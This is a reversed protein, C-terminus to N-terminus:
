RWPSFSLAAAAAGAPLLRESPNGSCPAWFSTSSQFCHLYRPIRPSTLITLNSSERMHCQFTNIRHHHSRPGPAADHRLLQRFGAQAHHEELAALPVCGEVAALVVQAILASGNQAAAETRVVLPIAAHEHVGLTALAHHQRAIANVAVVGCAHAATGGAVARHRPAVHFFVEAHAGGVARDRAARELVPGDAVRIELREVLFRLPFNADGPVVGPINEAGRAFLRQGHRRERGPAFVLYQFGGGLAQAQMGEVNGHQAVRHGVVPAGGAHLAAPAHSKGALDVGLVAGLVGHDGFGERAAIALQAGLAHHLFNPGVAATPGRTHGVEVRLARELDLRRVQYYRGAAGRFRRAQQEIGSAAQERLPKAIAV